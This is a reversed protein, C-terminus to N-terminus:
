DGAKAAAAKEAEIEARREKREAMTRKRFLTLSKFACSTVRRGFRDVVDIVDGTCIRTSFIRMVFRDESFLGACPGDLHVLYGKSGLNEFFIRENDLISSSWNRRLPVCNVTEETPKFRVDMREQRRISRASLGKSKIEKSKQDQGEQVTNFFALTDICPDSARAASPFGVMTLCLCLALVVLWGAFARVNQYRQNMADSDVMVSGM